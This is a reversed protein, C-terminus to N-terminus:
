GLLIVVLVALSIGLGHRFSVPEHFVLLGLLVTTVLAFVLWLTGTVALNNKQYLAPLWLTISLVDLLILFAYNEWTPHLVLKESFFEGGAYFIASISLWAWVPMFTFFEM